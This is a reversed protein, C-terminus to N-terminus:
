LFKPSTLKTVIVRYMYLFFLHKKLINSLLQRVISFEKQFKCIRKILNM